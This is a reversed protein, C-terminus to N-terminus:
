EANDASSRCDFEVITADLIIKSGKNVCYILSKRTSIDMNANLQMSNINACSFGPITKCNKAFSALYFSYISISYIKTLHGGYSNVSVFRISLIAHLPFHFIRLM